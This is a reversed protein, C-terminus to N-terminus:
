RASQGAAFRSLVRAMADNGGGSSVCPAPRTKWLRAALAVNEQTADDLKSAPIRATLAKRAADMDAGGVLCKELAAIVGELLEKSRRNRESARLGPLDPDLALVRECLEAQSASAQDKPNLQTANRFADLAQPYNGQALEAKGLGAFAEADQPNARAVERFQDAAEHPSGYELLLGGVHKKQQADRVQGAAALLEAIAQTKRANKELLAALEFRAETRDAQREPPWTADVARHYYTIADPTKGQLADIRAVGLNAAGNEADRALVEKLYVAGENLQKADALTLGLALRYRASGPSVSLANRFQQVAEEYRAQRALEVGSKYSEEARASRTSRYYYNLFGILMLLAIAAAMVGPVFGKGAMAQAIAPKKAQSKEEGFGYAELIANLTVVGQLERVNSRSVVPLANWKVQAMRRLAVDLPHDLHV